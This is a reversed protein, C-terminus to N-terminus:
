NLNAFILWALVTWIGYLGFQIGDTKNMRLKMIDAWTKAKRSNQVPGCWYVMMWTVMLHDNIMASPMIPNGCIESIPAEDHAGLICRM